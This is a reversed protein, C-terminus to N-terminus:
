FNRHKCRRILSLCWKGIIRSEFPFFAVRCFSYVRSHHVPIGTGFLLPMPYPNPEAQGSIRLCATAQNNRHVPPNSRPITDPLRALGQILGAKAGFNVGTKLNM